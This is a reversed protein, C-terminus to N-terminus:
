LKNQRGNSYMGGGGGGSSIPYLHTHVVPATLYQSFDFLFAKGTAHCLRRRQLPSAFVLLVIRNWRM